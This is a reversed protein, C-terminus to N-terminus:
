EIVSHSVTLVVLVNAMEIVEADILEDPVHHAALV